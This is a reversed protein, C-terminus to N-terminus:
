GRLVVILNLILCPIAARAPGRIWNRARLRGLRHRRRQVCRRVVCLLLSVRGIGSISARAADRNVVSIGILEHSANAAPAVRQMVM